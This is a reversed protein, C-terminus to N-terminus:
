LVTILGVSYRLIVIADGSDIDSNSVKNTVNGAAKQTDTLATLGVSYRLILIADGSDVTGDDNVDGKKVTQVVTVTGSTLTGVGTTPVAQLIFTGAALGQVTVSNTNSSASGDAFKAVAGTQIISWNYAADTGEVRFIQTATGALDLTATNPSISISTLLMVSDTVPTSSTNGVADEFWAYITKTGPATDILGWVTETSYAVGTAPKASTESLYMNVADASLQLNLNTDSTSTIESGAGDVIKITGTPAKNDILFPGYVVDASVRAGTNNTNDLYSTMIHLYLLDGSDFAALDAKAKVVNPPDLLSDVTGDVASSFATYLVDATNLSSASNNWKYFYGNLSDTGAMIPAKWRVLLDETWKTATNIPVEPSTIDGQNVENAAWSAPAM